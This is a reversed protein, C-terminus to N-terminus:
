RAILTGRTDFAGAAGAGAQREGEGLLAEPEQVAQRRARRGVVHRERYPQQALELHRREGRRDDGQHAAVLRQAGGEVLDGALRALRDRRSGGRRQRTPRRGPTRQREGVKARQARAGLRRRQGEGGLLRAAGEVEGAPREEPRQQQAEGRAAMEPEAGLVM